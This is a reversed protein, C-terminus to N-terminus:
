SHSCNASSSVHLFENWANTHLNAFCSYHSIGHSYIVLHLWKWGNVPRIAAIQLRQTTIAHVNQLLKLFALVRKPRLCHWLSKTCWVWLFFLKAKCRSASWSVLIWTKTQHGPPRMAASSTKCVTECPTWGLYLRTFDQNVVNHYQVSKQCPKEMDKIRLFRLMSNKSIQVHKAGNPCVNGGEQQTRQIEVCEICRVSGRV